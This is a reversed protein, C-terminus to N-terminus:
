RGNKVFRWFLLYQPPTVMLIALLSYLVGWVIRGEVYFDLASMSVACCMFGRAGWELRIKWLDRDLLRERNDM